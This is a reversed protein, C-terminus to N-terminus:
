WLSALSYIRSLFSFNTPSRSLSFDSTSLSRLCSARAETEAEQLLPVGQTGLARSIGPRKKNRENRAPNFSIILGHRISCSRIISLRHRGAQDETIM